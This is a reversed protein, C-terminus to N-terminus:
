QEFHLLTIQSDTHIDTHTQQDREHIMCFCILLKLDGNPINTKPGLFGCILHPELDEVALPLKPAYVM